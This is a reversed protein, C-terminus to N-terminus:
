SPESASSRKLFNAFKIMVEQLDPDLDATQELLRGVMAAEGETVPSTEPEAYHFRIHITATLSKPSQIM